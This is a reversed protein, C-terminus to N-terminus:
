ASGIVAIRGTPRVPSSPVNLSVVPSCAPAGAPSYMTVNVQGFSIVGFFFVVSSSKLMPDSVYSTSAPAYASTPLDLILTSILCPSVLSSGKLSSQAQSGERNNKERM